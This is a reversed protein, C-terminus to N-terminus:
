AKGYRLWAFPASVILVMLNGGVEEGWTWVDKMGYQCLSYVIDRDIKDLAERMVFYPKKYVQPTTDEV